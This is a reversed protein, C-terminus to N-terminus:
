LFNTGLFLSLLTIGRVIVVNGRRVMVISMRGRRKKKAELKDSNGEGKERRGEGKEEKGEKM